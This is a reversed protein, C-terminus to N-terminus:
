VRIVLDFLLISDYMMLMGIIKPYKVAAMTIPTSWLVFSCRTVGYSAHCLTLTVLISVPPERLM